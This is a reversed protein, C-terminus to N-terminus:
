AGKEAIKRYLDRTAERARERAEDVMEQPEVFGEYKYHDLRDGFEGDKGYKGGKVTVPCEEIVEGDKIRWM